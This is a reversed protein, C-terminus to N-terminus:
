KTYMVKKTFTQRDTTVNVFYLGAPVNMGAFNLSVSQGEGILANDVSHVKQGLANTVEVNVTGSAAKNLTILVQNNTPNPYAAIADSVSENELGTAVGPKANSGGGVTGAWSCPTLVNPGIIYGTILRNICTPAFTTNTQPMMYSPGPGAQYSFDSPGDCANVGNYYAKEMIYENASNDSGWAVLGDGAGTGNGLMNIQPWTPHSSFNNFGLSYDFRSPSAVANGNDDLKWVSMRNGGTNPTLSIGYYEYTNPSAVANFREAVDTIISNDAIVTSWIVGGTPDLKLIWPSYGSYIPNYSFMRGGVIFGPGGNPSDAKEISNFWDDGNGGDSYCNFDIVTGTNENLRMMFSEAALPPNPFNLIDCRGVVLLQGPFYPSHIIDKARPLYNPYFWSWSINALSNIKIAYAQGNLRGCMYYIGQVTNHACISPREAGNGVWHRQSLVAGTADLTMFFVGGAYAGAVAYAVGGGPNTPIIDVGICGHLRGSVPSGCSSNGIIEYVREFMSAPVLGNPDSRIIRFDMQNGTASSMVGAQVFGSTPSVIKGSTLFTFAGNYLYHREGYQALSSAAILCGTIFLGM